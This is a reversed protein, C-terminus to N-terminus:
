AAPKLPVGNVFASDVNYIRTYHIEQSSLVFALELDYCVKSETFHVKLVKASIETRSPFCLDVADGPQHASPLKLKEM